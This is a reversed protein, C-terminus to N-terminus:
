SGGGPYRGQIADVQDMLFQWTANLGLGGGKGVGVLLGAVDQSRV